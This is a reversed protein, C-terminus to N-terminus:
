MRRNALLDWGASVTGRSRGRPDIDNYNWVIRAFGLRVEEMVAGSAESGTMATTIMVDTLRVSGVPSTSGVAYFVLEAEPYHRGEACAVALLPSSKDIPKTVAVDQFQARGTTRAGGATVAGASTSLGWNFNLVDIWGEHGARTAGGEIGEIRLFANAAAAPSAVPSTDGSDTRDVSTAATLTLAGVVLAAALLTVPRRLFM